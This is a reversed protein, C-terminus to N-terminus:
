DEMVKEYVERSVYVIEDNDRSKMDASKHMSDMNLQKIIYNGLIASLCLTIGFAVGRKNFLKCM